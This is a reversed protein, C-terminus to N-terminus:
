RRGRPKAGTKKGKTGGDKGRAGGLAQESLAGIWEAMVPDIEYDYFSGEPLQSRDVEPPLEDVGIERAIGAGLLLAPLTQLVEAAVKKGPAPRVRRPVKTSSTLRTVMVEVKLADPLEGTEPGPVRALAEVQGPDTEPVVLAGPSRLWSGDGRPILRGLVVAGAGYHTDPAHECVRYTAGDLASAFTAEEGERARVEWVGVVSRILGRAMTQQKPPLEELDGDEELWELATLDNLGLFPRDVLAFEQERVGRAFEHDRQRGAPTWREFYWRAAARELALLDDGEVRTELREYLPELLWVHAQAPTVPVGALVLGHEPDMGLVVDLEVEELGAERLLAGAEGLVETPVDELTAPLLAAAPGDALERIAALHSAASQRLEPASPAGGGHFGRLVVGRALERGGEQLEWEQELADEGFLVAVSLFTATAALAHVADALEDRVPVVRPGPDPDPATRKRPM